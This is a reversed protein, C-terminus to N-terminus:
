KRVAAFHWSFNWDHNAWCELYLHHYSEGSYLTPTRPQGSNPCISGLAVIKYGYPQQLKPQAVRLALLEKLTAPRLGQRDMEKVIDESNIHTFGFNMLYVLMEAVGKENSPFHRSTVRDDVKDFKGAEILQEVTQDYNISVIYNSNTM